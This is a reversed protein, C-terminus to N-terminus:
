QAAPAQAPAINNRLNQAREALNKRVKAFFDDNKAGVVGNEHEMVTKMADIGFRGFETAVGLVGRAFDTGKKTTDQVAEFLQNREGLQQKLKSM